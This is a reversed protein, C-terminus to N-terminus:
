QFRAVNYAASVGAALLNLSGLIFFAVTVGFAASSLTFVRALLIFFTSTTLLFLPIRYNDLACEFNEQWTVQWEMVKIEQPNTKIYKAPYGV